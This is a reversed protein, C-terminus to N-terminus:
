GKRWDWIVIDWPEGADPEDFRKLLEFGAKQHGKISRINHSAIDTMAFDYLHKYSEKFFSYMRGLIGQGTYARAVCVQGISVYNSEGLLVGKYVTANFVPFIGTGETMLHNKSRDFLLCYGVVRDGEKAIIHHNGAPMENLLDLDYELTVFGYNDMEDQTLNKRLNAQQLDLIGQIEQQSTAKNIQINLKKSKLM